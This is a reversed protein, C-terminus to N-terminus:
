HLPSVQIELSSDRSIIYSGNLGSPDLCVRQVTPRDVGFDLSGKGGGGGVNSHIYFPDEKKPLCGM